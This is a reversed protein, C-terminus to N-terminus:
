LSAISLVNGDPDKFWAVQADGNAWIGLDDQPLFSYREFTIGAASLARVTAPVDAVNWGLVTNQQPTFDPLPTLRLTAENLGYVIGYDDESRLTLGLRGGYFLKAKERDTVTVFTCVKLTGVIAM